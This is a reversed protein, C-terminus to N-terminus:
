ENESNQIKQCNQIINSIGFQKSFKKNLIKFEKFNGRKKSIEFKKKIESIKVKKM